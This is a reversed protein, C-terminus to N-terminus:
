TITQTYTGFGTTKSNGYILLKQESQRQAQAPYCLSDRKGANKNYM